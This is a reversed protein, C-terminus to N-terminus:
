FCEVNEVIVADTTLSPTQNKYIVADATCEQAPDRIYADATLSTSGVVLVISDGTLAYIHTGCDIEEIYTLRAAMDELVDQLVMGAPYRGIQASLVTTTTDETGYHDLTRDHQAIPM